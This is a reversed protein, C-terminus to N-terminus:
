VPDNYSPIDFDATAPTKVRNAFRANMQERQVSERKLIDVLLLAADHASEGTQAVQMLNKGKTFKRKLLAANIAVGENELVDAAKALDRLNEANEDAVQEGKNWNYISQRSVGLAAALDSVAPNLVERIRALDDSPTRCHEINFSEVAYLTKHVRSQLVGKSLEGGTGATCAFSAVVAVAGIVQFVGPFKGTEVPQDLWGAYIDRM